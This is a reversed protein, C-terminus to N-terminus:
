VLSYVVEPSEALQAKAASTDADALIEQLGDEVGDLTARVVDAPHNKPFDAGTMMDTDTAALHM